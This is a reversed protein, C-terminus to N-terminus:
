VETHDSVQVTSLVANWKGTVRQQIKGIDYLCDQRANMQIEDGDATNYNCLEALINEEAKDRSVFSSGAALVVESYLKRDFEYFAAVPGRHDSRGELSEGGNGYIVESYGKIIGYSKAEQQYLVSHHGSFGASHGSGQYYRHVPNSLKVGSPSATLSSQNYHTDFSMVIIYISSFDDKVNNTDFKIVGARNDNSAEVGIGSEVLDM